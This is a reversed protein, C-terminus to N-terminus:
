KVYIQARVVRMESAFGPFARRLEALAASAEGSTRFNGVQTYWSPSRSFSYVQGRYKPLKAVIANGRAKARSHLTSQNRGDSFVQIRYGSMKGGRRAKEHRKVPQQKPMAFIDKCIDDPISINVRGGSEAAIRELIQQGMEKEQESQAYLSFFPVTM